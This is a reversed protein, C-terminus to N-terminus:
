PLYPGSHVDVPVSIAIHIPEPTGENDSITIKARKHWSQLLTSRDCTFSQYGAFLDELLDFIM